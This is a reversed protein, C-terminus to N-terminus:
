QRPTGTVDVSGSATVFGDGAQTLYYSVKLQDGDHQVSAELVHDVDLVAAIERNSLGPFDKRANVVRLDNVSALSQLLEVKFGNVRYARADDADLNEFPLVAVSIPAGDEVSGPTGAIFRALLVAVVVVVAMVLLAPLSGLRRPPVPDNAASAPPADLLKVKEELRYGRRAVNQVYRYPRENDELNRRLQTVCRTLPADSMARNDWIREILEDKSVIEGDHEALVMLLEFVKPEPQVLKGNRSLTGHSPRVQWDGVTFGAKIQDKEYM